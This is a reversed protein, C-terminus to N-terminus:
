VGAETDLSELLREVLSPRLYEVGVLTGLEGTLHEGIEQALMADPDAHIPFPAIIVVQADEVVGLTGM